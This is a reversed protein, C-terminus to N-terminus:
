GLLFRDCTKDQKRYFDLADSVVVTSRKNYNKNVDILEVNFYQEWIQELFPTQFVTKNESVLVTPKYNM